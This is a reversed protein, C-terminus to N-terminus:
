KRKSQTKEDLIIFQAGRREFWAKDAPTIGIEDWGHGTANVNTVEIMTYLITRISDAAFTNHELYERALYFMAPEYYTWDMPQGIGNEGNQGNQFMHIVVNKTNPNNLHERVVDASPGWTPNTTLNWFITDNKPEVPTVPTEPISDNPNDQNQNPNEPKTCATPWALMMLSLLLVAAYRMMMRVFGNKPPSNAPNALQIGCGNTDVYYTKAETCGMEVMMPELLAEERITSVGTEFLDCKRVILDEEKKLMVLQRESLRSIKILKKRRSKTKDTWFTPRM